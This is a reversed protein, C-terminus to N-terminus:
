PYSLNLTILLFIPNLVQFAARKYKKTISVNAQRGGVGMGVRNEEGEM